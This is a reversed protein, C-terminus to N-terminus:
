REFDDKLINLIIPAYGNDGGLQRDGEYYRACIYLWNVLLNYKAEIKNKGVGVLPTGPLCSDAIFCKGRKTVTIGCATEINPIHMKNREKKIQIVKREM